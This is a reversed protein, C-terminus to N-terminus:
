VKGTNKQRVMIKIRDVAMCIIVCCLLSCVATIVSKFIIMATLKEGILDLYWRAGMRCPNRLLDVFPWAVTAHLIMIYLSKQGLYILATQLVKLKRIYRALNIGVYLCLIGILIYASCELWIMWKYHILPNVKAYGGLDPYPYSWHKYKLIHFVGLQGEYIHDDLIFYYLGFMAAMSAITSGISAVINIKQIKAVLNEYKLQNVLLMVSVYIPVHAVNWPSQNINVYLINGLIFLALTVVAIMRPAKMILKSLPIFVVYVWIMNWAFWTTSLNLFNLDKMADVGGYIKDSLEPRIFTYALNKVWDYFTADHVIYAYVGSLASAIFTVVVSPVVLHKFKNVYEEAITRREVGHLLGSIVFFGIMFSIGICRITNDFVGGRTRYILHFLVIAFIGIGKIVDFDPLRKFLLKEERSGLKGM